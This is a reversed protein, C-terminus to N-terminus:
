SGFSKGETREGKLLDMDADRSLINFTASKRLAMSDNVILHILLM